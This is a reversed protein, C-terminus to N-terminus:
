RIVVRGSRMKTDSQVKFLCVGQPLGATSVIETCPGNTQIERLLRGTADYLKIRLPGQGPFGFRIDSGPSVPNPYVRVFSDGPDQIEDISTSTGKLLPINAQDSALFVSGGISIACSTDYQFSALTGSAVSAAGCLSEWSNTIEGPRRHYLRAHEPAVRITDSPEGAVPTFRMGSIPAFHDSGYADLLWYCGTNPNSHPMNVPLTELRTVVM